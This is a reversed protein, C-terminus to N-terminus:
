LIGQVQVRHWLGPGSSGVGGCCAQCGPKHVQKVPDLLQLGPRAVKGHRRSHPQRAEEVGLGEQRGDHLGRGAPILPGQVLHGQLTIHRLLVPLLEPTGRPFPGVHMAEEHFASAPVGLYVKPQPPPAFPMVQLSIVCM